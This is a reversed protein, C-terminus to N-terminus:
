KTVRQGNDDREFDSRLLKGEPSRYLYQVDGHQGEHYVCVLTWPLANQNAKRREARKAQRRKAKASRQKAIRKEPRSGEWRAKRRMTWERGQFALEWLPPHADRASQKHGKPKARQPNKPRGLYIGADRRTDVLDYGAVERDIARIM